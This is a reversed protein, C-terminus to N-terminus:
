KSIVRASVSKTVKRPSAKVAKKKKKQQKKEGSNDCTMATTKANSPPFKNKLSLLRAAVDAATGHVEGGLGQGAPRAPKATVNAYIKEGLKDRRGDVGQHEYAKVAAIADDESKATKFMNTVDTNQQVTFRLQTQFDDWPLNHDAAFAKEAVLSKFKPLDTWQGLGVGPGDPQVADPDLWSETLLSGTMYAASVPPFGQGIFFKYVATVLDDNTPEAM